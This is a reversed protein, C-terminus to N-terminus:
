HASLGSKVEAGLDWTITLPNSTRMLNQMEWFAFDDWGFNILPYIGNTEFASQIREFETSSISGSSLSVYHASSDEQGKLFNWSFVWILLLIYRTYMHFLYFCFLGIRFRIPS